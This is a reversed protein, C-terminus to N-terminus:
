PSDTELLFHLLHLPGSGLVNKSRPKTNSSCCCCSHHGQLGYPNSHRQLSQGKSQALIGTPPNICKMVPELVHTLLIWRATSNLVSNPHPLLVAALYSLSIKCYKSLNHSIISLKRRPHHFCEGKSYMKISVTM